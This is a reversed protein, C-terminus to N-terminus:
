AVPSSEWDRNAKEIVENKDLLWKTEPAVWFGKWGRAYQGLLRRDLQDPRFVSVVVPCPRRGHLFGVGILDSSTTRSEGPSSLSAGQLPLPMRRGDNPDSGEDLEGPATHLPPRSRARVVTRGSEEGALRGDRRRKRITRVGFAVAAGLVALGIGIEM